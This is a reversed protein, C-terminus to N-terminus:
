SAEDPQFGHFATHSFSGGQREIEAKIQEGINNLSNFNLLCLDRLALLAWISAEAREQDKAPLKIRVGKGECQVGCWPPFELVFESHTDSALAIAAAAVGHKRLVRKIDEAIVKLRPDYPPKDRPTM